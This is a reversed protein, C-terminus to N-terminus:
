LTSFRKKMLVEFDARTGDPGQFPLSDHIEIEYKRAYKYLETVAFKSKFPQSLFSTLISVGIFM